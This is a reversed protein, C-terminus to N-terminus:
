LKWPALDLGTLDSLEKNYDAFYHDLEIKLASSLKPYGPKKGKFALFQVGRYMLSSERFLESSKRLLVPIRPIVTVNRIEDAYKFDNFPVKLFKFLNHMNDLPNKVFDEFLMFFMQKKEFFELYSDIQDVYISRKLYGKFIDKKIHETEKQVAKEFSKREVGSKVAHWYNSYAREIPNRFIWILKIEQNYEQIRKPVKELYSYTPTKEGILKQQDCNTFNEEYWKIGKSYNQDNDFFHIEKLPICIDPNHQLQFALSSTGAKMAGVIIFDLKKM